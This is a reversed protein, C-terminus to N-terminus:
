IIRRVKEHMLFKIKKRADFLNSKSTGVSIGLMEAIEEHSFGEISFLNIVLRMRDPLEQIVKLVEDVEMKKYVDGSEMESANVTQYDEIFVLSRNKKYFRIAENIVIRKMWWEIKELEKLQHLYSFVKLVSENFIDEADIKNKAYRHCISLIHPAFMGYLAKKQQSDGQLCGSIIIDLGTKDM